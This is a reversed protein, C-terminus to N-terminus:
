DANVSVTNENKAPAMPLSANGLSSLHNRLRSTLTENWVIGHEMIVGLTGIYGAASSSAAISVPLLISVVFMSVPIGLLFQLGLSLDSNSRTTLGRILVGFFYAIFPVVILAANVLFYSPEM